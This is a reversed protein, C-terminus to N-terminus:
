ATFGGDVIFESGTSYRSEESALYLAMNAVDDATAMHGMPIANVVRDTTETRDFERAMETDIIGPHISNVRVGHPALEQAAGRTMGRVAWKTASYAHAGGSGRLGAISSINIISGSKQEIMHPAVAQMGLFVGTQNVALMRDWLARDTDLLGAMQFIGANNVLVDIHGHDSMIQKAVLEWAAWDTVDHEIFTANISAAFAAGEDALVDTLYVEAGEARFLQGEAAGQGRAGGSILAVKGDLRGM